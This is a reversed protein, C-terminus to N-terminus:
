ENQLKTSRLPLQIVFRTHPCTNDLFLSGGHGEILGKSISLGLGTGKGVAKTTFFPQFLHARVQDSIGSGSDTVLITLQNEANRATSLRIWGKDTGLNADCANNPLNLLVQSIQHPRCDIQLSPDIDEVILEVGSQHIKQSCFALTDEIVKAVSITQPTDQEGERSFARLGSIIKAIRLAAEEIKALRAVALEPSPNSDTLLERTQGAYISIIALPNNIEHAIGGAMRGLAAMKDVQILKEQALKIDQISQELRRENGENLHCLYYVSGASSFVLTVVTVLQQIMIARADSHLQGPFALPQFEIWFYGVIPLVLSPIIWKKDKLEFFLFPMANMLLFSIHTHSNFGMKESCAFAAYCCAIVLGFRGMYTFGFYNALLCLWSFALLCIALPIMGTVGSVTFTTIFFTILVSFAIYLYNSLKIRKAKAEPTDARVGAALVAQITSSLRM